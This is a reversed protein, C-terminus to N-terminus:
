VNEEEQEYKLSRKRELQVGERKLQEEIEKFMEM